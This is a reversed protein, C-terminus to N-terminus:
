RHARDRGSTPSALRQRNSTFCRGSPRRATAGMVAIWTSPFRPPPRRPQAATFRPRVPPPSPPHNSRTM